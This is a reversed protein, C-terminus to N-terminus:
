SLRQIPPLGVTQAVGKEYQRDNRYLNGSITSQLFLVGTYPLFSSYSNYRIRLFCCLFFVSVGIEILPHHKYLEAWTKAFFAPPAKFSEEILMGRFRRDSILYIRESM